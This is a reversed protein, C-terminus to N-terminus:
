NAFNTLMPNPFSLPHAHANSLYWIITIIHSCSGVTRSGTACSCYYELIAEKGVKAMDILIFTYHKKRSIFRSQIQTKLLMPREVVIDFRAFDIEGDYQAIHFTGGNSTFHEGLYSRAMRMQYSGFAIMHIDENRLQPFRAIIHGANNLQRFPVRARELRLEEVVNKLLNPRDVRELMEEAITDYNADSIIRIHFMNLLCCCIRWIDFDHELAGNHAMKELFKFKMKLRGFVQEIIWRCKTILRNHNSEVTNVQSSAAGRSIKVQFGKTELFQVVDRFGRDLVMIDGAELSFNLNGQNQDFCKKLITADNYRAKRPGMVFFIYGDTACGVMPKYLNRTKYACHLDRQASFNSSKGVYRYSADFVIIAKNNDSANLLLSAIPTNHSLVMERDPTLYTDVLPANIEEIASSVYRGITSESLGFIAGLMANSAGSRIKALFMAVYKVDCGTLQCIENVQRKSYGFMAFYDDDPITSINELQISTGSSQNLSDNAYVQLLKIVTMCEDHGVPQEIRRVLPWWDETALHEFCMRCSDSPLYLSYDVLLLRRIKRNVRVLRESYEECDFICRRHSTHSRRLFDENLEEDDDDYDDDYDDYDDDDDESEYYDPEKSRCALRKSSRTEEGSMSRRRRRSQGCKFIGDKGNEPNEEADDDDGDDIDASTSDIATVDNRNRLGANYCQQCIVSKGKVPAVTLPSLQHKLTHRSKNVQQRFENLFELPNNLKDCTYWPSKEKRRTGCALCETPM